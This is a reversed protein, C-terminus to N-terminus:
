PYMGKFYLDGMHVVNSSSFHVVADGDTHAAPAALAEIMEGNFHLQLREKFTLEPLAEPKAPPTKVNFAKIEGGALMRTRVEDQAILLAQGDNFPGNGGTHDFHWHTNFVYRVPENSLKAIAAKIKPALPQFQDDVLLVGEAGTLVAINGGQGQLMFISGAVPETSIEVKSFDQQALAPASCYAAALATYFLRKVTM